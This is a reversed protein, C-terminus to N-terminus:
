VRMCACLLLYLRIVTIAVIWCRYLKSYVIVGFCLRGPLFHFSSFFSVLFFHILHTFLSNASSTKSSESVLARQLIQNHRKFLSLCSKHVADDQETASDFHTKKMSLFKICISFSKLVSEKLWPFEFCDGGSQKKVKCLSVFSGCFFFDAWLDSSFFAWTM